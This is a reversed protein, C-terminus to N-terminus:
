TSGQDELAPPPLFFDRPMYWFRKLVLGILTGGQRFSVRRSRLAVALALTFSVMLNLAGILAIGLLSLIWQEPTLLYNMGMLAFIFNASSFTIHRIDIPLGFIFGLTGISGLMVGFFFNGALAGLNDGIYATIRALRAEGILRRLWALQRLRAPIENYAAKNDYYGSILGSLFLCVGAIAAHFLALSHFPDLDHLLHLAKDPDALPRGSLSSWCWAAVFATPMVVLVNGVIAIFQSRFVCIVLEALEHLCQRGADITAAISAATMAPQKTAITFHLVHVFMFGFSYNLSYFLAYGFPALVLKSLLVKIMAMFGVIFGAGSASRFMEKWEAADRTVYHEGSRSARETVQLALLETNTQFLESLSWKLNDAYVLMKFLAIGSKRAAAISVPDLLTLLIRLRDISQTLRLLLRTLSVSVGSQAAQRRIKVVVEECQGLLVEIHRADDRGKGREQLWCQYREVFDVVEANQRMFPSEFREIDPYNRVLEPELGIATIRYSLVQVAELLERMVRDHLELSERWEFGLVLLLSEWVEDDISCVWQWDDSHDFVLSFVDKVYDDNVTPPLWRHNFRKWLEGFFGASELIGTDTCLHVLKRSGIVEALYNRLVAALQPRASLLQILAYLHVTAQTVEGSRIPRLTRVLARLPGIDRTGPNALLQELIAKM